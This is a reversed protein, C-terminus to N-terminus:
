LTIMKKKWSIKSGPCYKHIREQFIFLASRIATISSFTLVHHNENGYLGTTGIKQDNEGLLRAGAYARQRCNKKIQRWCIKSSSSLHIDKTATLNEM